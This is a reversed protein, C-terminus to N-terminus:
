PGVHDRYFVGKGPGLDARVIAHPADGLITPHAARTRNWLTDSDAESHASGIQVWYGGAGPEIVSVKTARAREAPTDPERDVAAEQPEALAAVRKKQEALAAAQERELPTMEHREAKKAEAAPLTGGDEESIKSYCGAVMLAAGVSLVLTLRSRSRATLRDEVIVVVPLRPGPGAVPRRM